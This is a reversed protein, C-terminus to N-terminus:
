QRHSLFLSYCASFQKQVFAILNEVSFVSTTRMTEKSYSFCRMLTRTLSLPIPISFSSKSLIYFPFATRLGKVFYVLVERWNHEFIMEALPPSIYALDINPAPDMNLNVNGHLDRAKYGFGSKFERPNSGM